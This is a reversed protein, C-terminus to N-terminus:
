SVTKQFIGLPFLSWSFLAYGGPFSALVCLFWVINRVFSPRLAYAAAFHCHRRGGIYLPAPFTSLLRLCFLRHRVYVLRSFSCLSLRHYLGCLRLQWAMELDHM